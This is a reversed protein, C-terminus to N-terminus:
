HDDSIPYAEFPAMETRGGTKLGCTMTIKDWYFSTDTWNENLQTDARELDTEENSSFV